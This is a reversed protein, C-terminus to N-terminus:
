SSGSEVLLRNRGYGRGAGVVGSGAALITRVVDGVMRSVLSSSHSRSDGGGGHLTDVSSGEVDSSFERSVVVGIRGVMEGTVALNVM